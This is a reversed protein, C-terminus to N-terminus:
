DKSKRKKAKCDGCTYQEDAAGKKASRRNKCM